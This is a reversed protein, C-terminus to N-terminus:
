LKFGTKSSNTLFVDITEKNKFGELAMSSAEFAMTLIDEDTSAVAKEVINLSKGVKDSCKGWQTAITDLTIRYKPIYYGYSVIGAM